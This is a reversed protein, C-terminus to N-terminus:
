LLSNPMLSTVEICGNDSFHRGMGGDRWAPMFLADAADPLQTSGDNARAMKQISWYMEELRDRQEAPAFLLTSHVIICHTRHAFLLFFLSFLASSFLEGLWM